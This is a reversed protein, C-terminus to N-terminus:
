EFDAGLDPNGNPFDPNRHCGAIRPLVEVLLDPRVQAASAGAALRYGWIWDAPFVRSLDTRVQQRMFAGCAGDVGDSARSAHGLDVVTKEGSELIRGCPSKGM